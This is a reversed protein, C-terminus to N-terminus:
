EGHGYKKSGPVEYVEKAGVSVLEESPLLIATLKNGYCCGTDLGIAYRTKKFGRKADHGFFVRGPGKWEDVWPCGADNSSSAIREGFAATGTQSPLLNRMSIMAKHPQLSLPLGPVIGAHVVIVNFSPISITYPLESLFFVDAEDLNDIWLMREPLVKVGEFRGRRNRADLIFQDHNGRVCYLGKSRVLQVTEASKPGKNVLDGVLVVTTDRSNRYIRELLEELEDVCGHVDGIIALQPKPHLLVAHPM